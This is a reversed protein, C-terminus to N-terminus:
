GSPEKLSSPTSEHSMPRPTISIACSVAGDTVDNVLLTQRVDAHWCYGRFRTRGIFCKACPHMDDTVINVGLREIFCKACPHTDNTVINVGAEKHFVQCM